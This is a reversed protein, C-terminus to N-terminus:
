DLRSTGLLEIDVIFCFCHAYEYMWLTATRKPASMKLRIAGSVNRTVGHKDVQAIDTCANKWFLSFLYYKFESCRPMYMYLLSTHVNMVAYLRTCKSSWIFLKTEPGSIRVDDRGLCNENDNNGSDTTQIEASENVLKQQTFLSIKGVLYFTLM